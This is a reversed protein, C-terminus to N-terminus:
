APRDRMTGAFEIAYGAIAIMLGIGAHRVGQMLLYFLAFAGAGLACFALTRQTQRALTSAVSPLAAAGVALVLAIWGLGNPMEGGNRHISPTRFDFGQGGGPLSGRMDPFMNGFQEAAQNVGRKVEDAANFSFWPLFFGLVVLASGACVLKRAPSMAAGQANAQQTVGLSALLTASDAATIKGEEVMKLIREREPSVDAQKPAEAAAVPAAPSFNLLPYALLSGVTVLLIVPFSWGYGLWAFLPILAAVILNGGRLWARVGDAGPAKEEPTFHGGIWRHYLKAALLAAAPVFLFGSALMIIYDLEQRGRASRLVGEMQEIRYATIAGAVILSGIWVMAAYRRELGTFRKCIGFFFFAPIVFVIVIPAM